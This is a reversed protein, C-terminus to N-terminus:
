YMYYDTSQVPSKKVSQNNNSSSTIPRPGTPKRLPPTSRMASGQIVTLENSIYIYIYINSVCRQLMLELVM